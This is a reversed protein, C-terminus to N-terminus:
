LNLVQEKFDEMRTDMHIITFNDSDQTDKYLGVTIINPFGGLEKQCVKSEYLREYRKM